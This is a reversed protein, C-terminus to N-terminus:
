GMPVRTAQRFSLRWTRDRKSWLLSHLLRITQKTEGTRGVLMDIKGFLLAADGYPRVEGELRTISEYEFLGGRVGALYSQKTDAFGPSHIYVLDDSLLNQLADMDRTIMARYLTREHVQIEAITLSRGDTM